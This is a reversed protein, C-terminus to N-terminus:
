PRVEGATSRGAVPAAALAPSCGAGGAATGMSRPDPPLGYGRGDSVSGMRRVTATTSLGPVRRLWVVMARCAALAAREAPDQTQRYEESKCYVDPELAAIEAACDPRATSCDGSGFPSQSQSGFVVVADVSRLSALMYARHEQRYIPRDPGKLARVSADSNLLVVLAEGEARARELSEVHGAHVVDFCGNTLALTAGDRRLAQRWAVAAALDLIRATAARM